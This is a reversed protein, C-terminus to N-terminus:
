PLYLRMVGYLNDLDLAIEALKEACQKCYDRDYMVRQLDGVTLVPLINQSYSRRITLELSTEGDVTRRNGTLLLDKKQQCLQWM